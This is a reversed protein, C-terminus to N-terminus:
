EDGCWTSQAEDWRSRLEKAADHYSISILLEAVAEIGNSMGKIGMRGLVEQEPMM